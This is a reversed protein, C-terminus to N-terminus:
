GRSALDSLAGVTEPSSRQSMENRTGAVLASLFYCSSLRHVLKEWREVIFTSAGYVVSQATVVVAAGVRLDEMTLTVHLGGHVPCLM